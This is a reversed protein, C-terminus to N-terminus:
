AAKMAQAADRLAGAGAQAMQIEALAQEQERRQRRIEAVAKKDRLIAAPANTAKKVLRLMEEWDIADLAEKDIQGAQIAMEAVRQAALLEPMNQATRLPGRYVCKMEKGELEPPIEPLRRRRELIAFLRDILPVMFENVMRVYVPGLIRNMQEFRGQAETATMYSNQQSLPPLQIQDVHFLSEIRQQLGVMLAEAVDIRANTILERFKTVDVVETLGNPLTSLDGDPLMGQEYLISPDVTKDYSKFQIKRAKCLSKMDPLADMAPSEGYVEGSRKRYRCVIYPFEYYGPTRGGAEKNLYAKKEELIYQSIYRHRNNVMRENTRPACVHYVVFDDGHKKELDTKLEDPQDPWKELIQGGTMTFRRIVANVYGDASERLFLQKPPIAEFRFGFRERRMDWVEDSFLCATGFVNYDQYFEDMESYFNSIELDDYILAECDDFYKMANKFKSLEREVPELEFWRLAPGTMTGHMAASALNKCKIGTSDMLEIPDSRDQGDSKEVTVDAKTPYFFKAAEQWRSEWYTRKEKLRGAENIWYSAIPM